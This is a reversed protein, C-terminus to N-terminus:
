SRSIGCRSRRRASSRRSRAASRHAALARRVLQRARARHDLFWMGASVASCIRRSSTSACRSPAARDAPDLLRPRHHRLASQGAPASPRAHVRRRHVREHGVDGHVARPHALYLVLTVLPRRDGRRSLVAPLRARITTSTAMAIRFTPSLLRGAAPLRPPTCVMFSSSASLADVGSSGHELRSGSATALAPVTAERSCWRWATSTRRRSSKPTACRAARSCSRRSGPRPRRTWATASPSSRTRASRRARRDRPRGDDGQAGRPVGRRRAVDPRRRHRDDRRRARARDREVQREGRRAVRVAPRSAGRRDAPAQTVVKWSATTSRGGARAGARARRRARAQLRARERAGGRAHGRARASEEQPRPDRARRRQVAPAVICEVFLSSVADAAADDVPVTFAIVSGFASVPDCALAKQYAELATPAPPSAARRRTSSSRARVDREGFPDVRSCRARSTSCTTSRSSRAAASSSRRRPGRGPARRLVGGGTRSERRLAAVARARVLRRDDAPFKEDRQQAFWAAIAADYAATHAFVKAALLRRLDLDDDGATLAALVRAYDAPDVVVWVSEFNKAASRLM